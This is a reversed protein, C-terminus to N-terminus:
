EAPIIIIVRARKGIYKPNIYAKVMGYEYEHGKAKASGRLVSVEKEIVDLVRTVVMKAVCEGCVLVVIFSIFM